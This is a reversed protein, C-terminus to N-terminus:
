LDANERLSDNFINHKDQLKARKKPLYSTESCVVSSHPTLSYLRTARKSAKAPGLVKHCGRLPESGLIIELAIAPKSLLPVRFGSGGLYRHEM